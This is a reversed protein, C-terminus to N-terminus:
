PNIFNILILLKAFTWISTVLNDQDKKNGFLNHFQDQVKQKLLSKNAKRAKQRKKREWIEM